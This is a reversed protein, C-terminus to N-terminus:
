RATNRVFVEVIVLLLAMADSRRRQMTGGNRRQSAAVGNCRKSAMAACLGQQAAVDRVGAAEGGWKMGVQTHWGGAAADTNWRLIESQIAHFPKSIVFCRRELRKAALITIRSRPFYQGNYYLPVQKRGNECNGVSREHNELWKASLEFSKERADSTEHNELWQSTRTYWMVSSSNSLAM